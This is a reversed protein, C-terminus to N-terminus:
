NCDMYKQALCSDIELSSNINNKKLRQDKQRYEFNKNSKEIEIIM